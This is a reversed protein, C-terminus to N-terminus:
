DTYNAQLSLAVSNTKRIFARVLVHTRHNWACKTVDSGYTVSSIKAFHVDALELWDEIHKFGQVTALESSERSV